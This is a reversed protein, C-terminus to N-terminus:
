LSIFFLRAYTKHFVTYMAETATIIQQGVDHAIYQIKINADYTDQVLWLGVGNAAHHPTFPM